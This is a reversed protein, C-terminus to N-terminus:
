ENPVWTQANMDWHSNAPPAPVEVVPNIPLMRQHENSWRMTDEVAPDVNSAAFAAEDKELEKLVAEEEATLVDPPPVQWDSTPPIAVADAVEQEVARKLAEDTLGAAEYGPVDPAPTTEETRPDVQESM